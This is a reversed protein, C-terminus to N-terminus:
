DVLSSSSRTSSYLVKLGVPGEDVRGISRSRPRNWVFLNTQSKRQENLARTSFQSSADINRLEELHTEVSVGDVEDVSGIWNLLEELAVSVKM